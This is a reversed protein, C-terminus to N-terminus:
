VLVELLLLTRALTLRQSDLIAGAGAENVSQCYPHPPAAGCGPAAVRDSAVWAQAPGAYMVGSKGVDVVSVGSGTVLMGSM